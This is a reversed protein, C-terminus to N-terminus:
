APENGTRDELARSRRKAREWVDLDKLRTRSNGVAAALVQESASLIQHAVKKHEPRVLDEDIGRRVTSFVPSEDSDADKPLALALHLLIEALLYGYGALIDEHAIETLNICGGANCIQGEAELQETSKDRDM